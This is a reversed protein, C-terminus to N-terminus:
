LLQDWYVLFVKIVVVAFQNKVNDFIETFSCFHVSFTDM